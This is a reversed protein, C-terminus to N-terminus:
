VPQPSQELCASPEAWIRSFARGLDPQLSQAGFRGAAQESGLTRLDQAHLHLDKTPIKNSKQKWAQLCCARRRADKEPENEPTRQQTRHRQGPARSLHREGEGASGWNCRMKPLVRAAGM